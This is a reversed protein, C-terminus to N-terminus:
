PMVQHQDDFAVREFLDFLDGLVDVTYQMVQSALCSSCLLHHFAPHLDNVAQDDFEFLVCSSLEFVKETIRDSVRHRSHEVRPQVRVLTDELARDTHCDAHAVKEGHPARDVGFPIRGSPRAQRLVHPFSTQEIGKEVGLLSPICLQLM